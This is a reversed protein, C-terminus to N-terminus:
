GALMARAVREAGHLPTEPDLVVHVPFRAVLERQPEKALFADLFPGDKMLPLLRAPIGGGLFVGGLAVSRLAVNGAEAGFAGIWVRVAEACLRSSGSVASRGIAAAPASEGPSAEVGSDDPLGVDDRLWVFVNVLGPGSVVREQTARGYTARLWRMLSLEEDTRPAYDAHGGEGAVVRPGHGRDPLVVAEGLGTGPSVLVRNGAGPRGPHLCVLAEPRVADLGLGSAELDNLLRVPAGCREALEAASLNWPLNAGQVAEEVVPGAVGLAIAGPPAGERAWDAVHATIDEIRATDTVQEGVRHGSAADIRALHVKTGGVDGVIILSV